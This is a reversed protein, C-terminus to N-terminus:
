DRAGNIEGIIGLARRWEVYFYAICLEDHLRRLESHFNAYQDQQWETATPDCFFVRCGFPRITHVSCLKDVQFPCGGTDANAPATRLEHLFTALEM